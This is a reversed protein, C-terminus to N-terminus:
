ACYSKNEDVRCWADLQEVAVLHQEYTDSFLTEGTRLDVAVFYLWSGDAPDIAAKLADEGPLSIPGAPLGQHVYTNYINSADERQEPTTWVTGTIGAGYAVTADSQLLMDIDIRNLFVRAIKRMDEASPGSEKQVLAALTLIRFRDQEAVGLADLRTYTEDVMRQLIDKATADPDFTYTAPFLYGEIGPAEAPIGFQTFNAAEASLEAEPIGTAIAVAAIAQAATYGEPITVSNEVRNAEDTIAVLAAASSMKEQMRFVGPYFIPNNGSDILYEYFAEKTKTVGAEYLTVSISQGDDGEVVTVFVEAGALGDEWDNPEGWGMVDSIKEGYTNWVWVGGAAIGGVVALVIILAVLCGTRRKKKPTTPHADHDSHFLDDLGGGIAPADQDLATAAESGHSDTQAQAPQAPSSTTAAGAAAAAAAERAARRSGPVPPADIPPSVPKTPDPLNEFLDGLRANPDDQPSASDREPM